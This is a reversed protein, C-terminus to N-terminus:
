SRGVIQLENTKQMNIVPGMVGYQLRTPQHYLILVCQRGLNPVTNEGNRINESVDFCLHVTENM